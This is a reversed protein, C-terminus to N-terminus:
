ENELLIFRYYRRKQDIPNYDNVTFKRGEILWRISKKTTINEIAPQFRIIWEWANDFVVEGNDLVRGGKLKSLKGRCTLLTSYSDKFGAGQAVPANTQLQGTQRLQGIHPNIVGM